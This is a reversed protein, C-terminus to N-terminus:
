RPNPIPLPWIMLSFPSSPMLAARCSAEDTCTPVSEPAQSVNTRMAASLMASMMQRSAGGEAAGLFCRVDLPASVHPGCVIAQAVLSRIHMYAHICAHMYAHIYAHICTHMYAHMCAHMCAHMYAHMCAIHVHTQTHYMYLCLYLYLVSVCVHDCVRMCLVMSVNMYM